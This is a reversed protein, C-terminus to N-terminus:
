PCSAPVIPSRGRVRLGSSKSPLNLFCTRTCSLSTKDSITPANVNAAAIDADTGLGTRIAVLLGGFDSVRGADRVQWFIKSPARSHGERAGRLGKGAEGHEIEGADAGSRDACRISQSAVIM